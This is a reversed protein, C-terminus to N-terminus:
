VIGRGKLLSKRINVYYNPRQLGNKYIRATYLALGVAVFGLFGFGFFALLALAGRSSDVVAFWALVCSFLIWFPFVYAPLRLWLTGSSLVGAFGFVWMGFFNYHTKGVARKSRKYPVNKIDFGVRGISARIFPFSTADRNVAERVSKRMACFEAMDLLFREDAAARTLRYYLKRVLKLLLVEERDTREGYVVDYGSEILGLFEAFLEPPDECDVDVIGTIDGVSNRLGCEVSVQYGFNRSMEIFEIWDFRVALERLVDLSGDQSCNDIFLLRCAYRARLGDFVKAIRDVFVPIAQRENYVPCIVEFTEM